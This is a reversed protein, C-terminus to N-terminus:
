LLGLERARAVAQTRSKVGLKDYINNIHKKVTSIAVVLDQAIEQNSYGAAVRRLVELERESLPEILPQPAAPTEGLANLLRLAYSTHLDKAVAQRLLGAMPPGEDLFIRIFGEPEALRLAEELVSLAEEGRKQAALTIAQLILIEILSGNRRGSVAAQHLRLLLSEATQLNGQAILLRALTLYEIEHLYTVQFDVQNLGSEQAWRSAEALNGQAIQLRAQYCGAPPIPWFRNVQHHQVLELATRISQQSGPVDGETQHM